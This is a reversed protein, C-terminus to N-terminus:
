QRLPEIEIRFIGLPRQSQERHDATVEPPPKVSLSPLLRGMSAMLQYAAFKYVAEVSSKQFRSNFLASEADLLDLLSRKSLEYEEQYSRVITKNAAVQQRLISLRKRGRVLGAWSREVQARAARVQADRRHRAANIRASTENLRNRRQLGSFLNWSFTLGGRIDASRHPTGDLERGYSASGEAYVQPSYAGYARERDFKAADINAGAVKIAPNNNVAISVAARRTKPLRRPLKVARLRKARAGVVEYFRALAEDLARRVDEAVSRAALMRERAQYVDSEPAKGGDARERILSLVKAHRRVNRKAISRLIVHRRVDIYAEVALLATTESDNLVMFAAADLRAADRYIQNAREFGDYIIQRVTGAVKRRYVSRDNLTVAIGMPKDVHQVGIDGSIDITPAIRGQSQRLLYATALRDAKSAAVTPNTEITHRVADRLSMASAATATAIGMAVVGFALVVRGM